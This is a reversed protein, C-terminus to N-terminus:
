CQRPSDRAARRGQWRYRIPWMTRRASRDPPPPTATARSARPGPPPRRSRAMSMRPRRTSRRVRLEGVDLSEPRVAHGAVRQGGPPRRDDAPGGRSRPRSRAFGRSREDGGRRAAAPSDPRGAHLGRGAPWTGAAARSPRRRWGRRRRPDRRPGLLATGDTLQGREHRGRRGSPGVPRDDQSPGHGLTVRTRPRPRDGPRPRGRARGRRQGGRRRRGTSREGVQQQFEGQGGVVRPSRDSRGRLRQRVDQVPPHLGDHQAVVRADPGPRRRRGTPLVSRGVERHDGLRGDRGVIGVIGDHVADKDPGGDRRIAMAHAVAQSFKPDGGPGVGGTFTGRQAHRGGPGGEHAQRRCRRIPRRVRRRVQDHRRAADPRGHGAGVTVSAM